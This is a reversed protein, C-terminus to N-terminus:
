VGQWSWSNSNGVMDGCGIRCACSVLFRVNCEVVNCQSFLLRVGSGETKVCVSYWCLGCQEGLM